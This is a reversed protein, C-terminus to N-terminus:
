AKMSGAAKYIAEINATPVDTQLVHSPALIYGGGRGLTEGLRGVFARVEAPTGQPLLHQTDVGGHFCIRDGYKNKLGEPEMGVASVQVPDLIDVGLDLLRPILPAVAGCSHFMVRAGHSKALSAMRAIRPAIFVEFTEPSFLLRDQMALDDVIRLIDIRGEAATLLRDFYEAYFDTFKDLLYTALEPEAAMDALLNEMGRLYTAHQYVSTGSVLIAYDKWPELRRALGSFDFWDVSPWPHRSLEEVSVASALAFDCYCEEPGTATEVVRTRIGWYTEKVGSASHREKTGPGVYVPDVIGRVDVIDSGTYELLDRQSKLGWERCLKETTGPNASFSVPLRDTPTRELAAFVREKGTM